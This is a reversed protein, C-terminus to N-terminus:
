HRDLIINNITSTNKLILKKEQIKNYLRSVPLSNKLSHSVTLLAKQYHHHYYPVASYSENSHYHRLIENVSKITLIAKNLMIFM